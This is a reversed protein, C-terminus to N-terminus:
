TTARGKFGTTQNLFMVKSCRGDKDSARKADNINMTERELEEAGSIEQKTLTFDYNEVM